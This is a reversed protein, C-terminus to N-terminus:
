LRFDGSQRQENVSRKTQDTLMIGKALKHKPPALRIFAQVVFEYVFMNSSKTKRCQIQHYVTIAEWFPRTCPITGWATHYRSVKLPVPISPLPNPRTKRTLM